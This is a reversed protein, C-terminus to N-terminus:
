PRSPPEARMGGFGMFPFPSKKFEQFRKEIEDKFSQPIEAMAFIAGNPDIRSDQLTRELAVDERAFLKMMINTREGLRIRDISPMAGGLQSMMPDEKIYRFLALEDAGIAVHALMPDTSVARGVTEKSIKAKLYGNPPLGMPMAETPEQRFDATKRNIFSAVMDMFGLGTKAPASPDQIKLDTGPGFMMREVLTRQRPDLSSYSISGESLLTRRQEAGFTGYLRVSDWDVVGAMGMQMSNPAFLMLYAMASSDEYPSPSTLAYEALEDLSVSGRAKAAAVLKTLALRDVRHRRAHVPHKPRVILWGGEEKVEVEDSSKLGEMFGNVTPTSDFFLELVSTMTDPVLAAINLKRHKGVAMLSESVSFSLPDYLDPRLLKAEIEKSLASRNEGMGFSSFIRTLEKTTDSFEIPKDDKAPAPKATPDAMEVAERILNSEGIMTSGEVAVKGHSDFLRLTVTVGGIFQQPEAILLLKSPRGEIPKPKEGVGMKKMFERMQREMENDPEEEPRNAAEAVRKNHTAVLDAVIPELNGPLLKQMRTPRSAFVIRDDETTGALDAPNLRSVLDIIHRDIDAGGGFMGFEFDEVEPKVSPDTPKKKLQEVRKRIAERITRIRRQREDNAERNANAAPRILRKVGEEDKWEGNAAEAIRDLATQVPVNAFRVVLVDPAVQPSVDLQLQAAAGFEQVLRKAPMAVREFTIPRSLDQSPASPTTLLVLTALLSNM